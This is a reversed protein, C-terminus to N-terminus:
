RQGGDRGTTVTVSILGERARGVSHFVRSAVVRLPPVRGVSRLFAPGLGYLLEGRRRLAETMPQVEDAIRREYIGIADERSGRSEAVSEAAARGSAVAMSIGEGTIPDVLGAADGALLLPGSGHRERGTRIPIPFALPRDQRWKSLGQSALFASLDERLAAALPRQSFVGANLHDKKPFIWGYGRRTATVDFSVRDAFSGLQEEADPYVRVYIAGGVALPPLGAAQRGKGRAGDALVVYRARRAANGHRVTVAGREQEVARVSEGFMVRAGAREALDVLHTDLERRTTTAILPVRTVFSATFGEGFAVDARFLRRHVVPAEAGGLLALTRETM